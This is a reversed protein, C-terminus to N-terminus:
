PRNWASIAQPLTPTWPNRNVAREIGKICDAPVIPWDSGFTLIAQRELLSRWAFATSWASEPIKKHWLQVPPREHLPQMSAIVGLRAFRPLDAPKCIEIHEIRHRIRHGRRRDLEHNERRAAAVADLLMSVSEDGICHAAVQLGARDALCVVERLTDPTFAPISPLPAQDSRYATDKEVVGDLFLKITQCEVLGDQPLLSDGAAAQVAKRRQHHGHAHVAHLHQSLARIINGFISDEGELSIHQQRPHSTAELMDLLRGHLESYPIKGARASHLLDRVEAALRIDGLMNADPVVSISSHVRLNLKHKHELELLLILTELDEEPLALGMNHITSIGNKHMKEAIRCISHLKQEPTLPYKSRLSGEVLFYAEPERLEGGPRNDSGLTISETMELVELLPPWPPMETFM